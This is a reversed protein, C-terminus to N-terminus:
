PPCKVSAVGGPITVNDQALARAGSSTHRLIDYKVRLVCSTIGIAAFRM